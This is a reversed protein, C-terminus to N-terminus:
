LLTQALVRRRPIHTREPHKTLDATPGADNCLIAAGALTCIFIFVASVACYFKMMAM